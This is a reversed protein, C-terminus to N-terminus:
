AGDRLEAQSELLLLENLCESCIKCSKGCTGCLERTKECNCIGCVEKGTTPHQSSSYESCVRVEAGGEEEKHRGGFKRTYHKSRLDAALDVWREPLIDSIERHWKLRLAMRGQFNLPIYYRPVEFKQFAHRIKFDGLGRRSWDNYHLYSVGREACVEVSKALLANTPAKDRCSVLAIIQMLGSVGGTAGKEDHVLKAFGIMEGNLFAGIFESRGPFTSNDRKIVEISERYHRFPRGQRLPSEDYIHKIGRVFDDNFEMLRVEVSKQAKKIRNRAVPKIQHNFWEQYSSIPLVAIAEKESYLDYKPAPGADIRQLFTFLGADVKEKKLDALLHEPDDVWEFYEASLKLIKPFGPVLLLKKQEIQLAM